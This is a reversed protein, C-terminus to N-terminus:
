QTETKIPIGTEKYRFPTHEVNIVRAYHKQSGIRRIMFGSPIPVGNEDRVIKGNETKADYWRFLKKGDARIGHKVKVIM